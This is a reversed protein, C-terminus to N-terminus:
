LVTDKSLIYYSLLCFIRNRVMIDGNLVSSTMEQQLTYFSPASMPGFLNVKFTYKKYNPAFFALKDRHLKYVIVQHYGQKADATIIYIASAGVAINSISDDCRPIPYEFTRTVINLGRYSVCMRWFFDKIKEVNEQHTKKAPVIQSGWPGKCEEICDTKLLNGIQDM